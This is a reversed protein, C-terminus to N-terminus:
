LLDLARLRPECQLVALASLADKMAGTRAVELAEAAPMTVVEIQETMEHSSTGNLEVGTALYVYMVENTTANNSYVASVLILEDCTAGAEEHLEERAVAEPAVGERDHMGGAPVELCWDDVTYRYQRILVMQKDRTVPVILVAGRSERYAYEIEGKGEIEIRDQRITLWKTVYPYITEKLHWGLKEGLPKNNKV